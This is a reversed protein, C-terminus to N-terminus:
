MEEDDIRVDLGMIWQKQVKANTSGKPYERSDSALRLGLEQFVADFHESNWRVKDHGGGRRFEFYDKKFDELPM